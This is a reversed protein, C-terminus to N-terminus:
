KHIKLTYDQVDDTLKLEYIKGSPDGCVPCVLGDEIQEIASRMGNHLDVVTVNADGCHECETYLVLALMNPQNCEDVLADELTCYYNGSALEITDPGTVKYQWSIYPTADFAETVFIARDDTVMKIPTVKLGSATTAKYINGIKLTNNM